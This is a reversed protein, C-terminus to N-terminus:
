FYRAVGRSQSDARVKFHFILFDAEGGEREREESIDCYAHSVGGDKRPIDAGDDGM